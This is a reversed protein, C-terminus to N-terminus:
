TPKFLKVGAKTAARRLDEDLTAIPSGNRLALELYSADYSSLRYRRSLQLTDSLVHTFTEADVEISIGELLAIFSGSQAATVLDKAESRAIVNPIELGWTMPVIATTSAARLANLVALPYAEDRAATDKLLWSLTVSADLVFRV